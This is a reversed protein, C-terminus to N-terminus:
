LGYYAKEANYHNTIITAVDSPLGGAGFNYLRIGGARMATYTSGIRGVYLDVANLGTTQSAISVPTGATGNRYVTVNGNRDIAVSILAWTSDSIAVAPGTAVVASDGDGHEFAAYRNTSTRYVRWGASNGTASKKSIANRDATADGSFYVWAEILWDSTADDDLVDGFTLYQTSGNLLFYYPDAATVWITTADATPMTTGHREFGSVDIVYQTEPKVNNRADVWLHLNSMRMEGPREVLYSEDLDYGLEAQNLAAFSIPLVREGPKYELSVGPSLRCEPFSWMQFTTSSAMGGYRIAYLKQEANRPVDIEDKTTQWLNVVGSVKQSQPLYNLLRGGDSVVDIMEYVDNITMDRLAGVDSFETAASPDTERLQFSGLGKVFIRSRKYQLAM